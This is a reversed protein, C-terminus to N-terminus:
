HEKIKQRPKPVVKFGYENGMPTLTVMPHLECDHQELIVQVNQMCRQARVKDNGEILKLNGSGIIKTM